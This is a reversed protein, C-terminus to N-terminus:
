REIFVGRSSYDLTIKIDEGSISYNSKLRILERLNEANKQMFWLSRTAGQWATSGSFGGKVSSGSVSPHGSVLISCGTERIIKGLVAKMFYNVQSRIIESGGFIDSLTDLIVYKINQDKITKLLMYFFNTLRPQGSMDYTVLLNDYGVRPLIILNDNPEILNYGVQVSQQRRAIENSDEECFVCLVKKKKTEYGMFTKGLSIFNALGLLFTSKGVGGIGYINAITNELHWGEWIWSREEIPLRMLQSATFFSLPESVITDNAVDELHPQLNEIIKKCKYRLATEGRNEEELSKGNRPKVLPFYDEACVNYLDQLTFNGKDILRNYHKYVIKTMLAERGDDVKTLIQNLSTINNRQSIQSKPKQIFDILDKTPLKPKTQPNIWSYGDSPSAVVFGNKGRIDVGPLLDVQNQITVDEPKVFFYHKGGSRTEATLTNDIDLNLDKSLQKISELGNKNNKVDVDIVFYKDTRIGIQNAKGSKILDLVDDTTQDQEKQWGALQPIKDKCPIVFFGKSIYFDIKEKFNKIKTDDTVPKGYNTFKNHM